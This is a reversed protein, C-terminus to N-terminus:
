MAACAVTKRMGMAVSRGTLESPLLLGRCVHLTPTLHRVYETLPALQLCLHRVDLM